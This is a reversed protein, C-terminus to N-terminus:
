LTAYYLVNFYTVADYLYHLLTHYVLITRSNLRQRRGDALFHPSSVHASSRIRDSPGSPPARQTLAQFLSLCSFYLIRARLITDYVM